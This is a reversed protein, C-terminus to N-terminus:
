NAERWRKSLSVCVMLFRPRREISFLALEIDNGRLLLLGLGSEILSQGLM